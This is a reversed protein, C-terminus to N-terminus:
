EKRGEVQASRYLQPVVPRESERGTGVSERSDSQIQVLLQYLVRVPISVAHGVSFRVHSAFDLHSDNFKKM